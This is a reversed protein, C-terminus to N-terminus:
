RERGRQRYRCWNGRDREREREVGTVGIERVGEGQRRMIRSEIESVM